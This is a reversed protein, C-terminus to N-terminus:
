AVFLTRTAFRDGLAGFALLGIGTGAVYAAIVLQAAGPDGGLAEPLSPIAPLVLDTGVLGLVTAAVVLALRVRPRTVGGDM